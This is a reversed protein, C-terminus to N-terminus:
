LVRDNCDATVELPSNPHMEPRGSGRLENAPTVERPRSFNEFFPKIVDITLAEFHRKPECRPANTVEAV